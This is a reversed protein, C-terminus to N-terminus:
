LRLYVGIMPESTHVFANTSGFVTTLQPARYLNGRYQLRLGLHPLFGWDLGAGYVFVGKTSSTTATQGSTPQSFLLGGGALAFPRLNLVKLSAVYDGTVEHADAKVTTPTISGCPLGCSITSTYTQNDRNFSYTGEFGLLPNAIHRVEVIGGASNAPSQQVNGGNTTGSFAGYFSLAVDTRGLEGVEHVQATALTSAAASLIIALIASQIPTSFLKTQM